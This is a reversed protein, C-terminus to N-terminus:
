EKNLNDKDIEVGKLYFKSTESFKDFIEPVEKTQSYIDKLVEYVDNLKITLNEILFKDNNKTLNFFEFASIAKIKKNEDLIIKSYEISNNYRLFYEEWFKLKYPSYNPFIIDLYPKYFPNKYPTLNRVIDTWISVTKKKAELYKRESDSNYMFTGYLNITYNNALFLILDMNYEFYNPYQIILQHLCDLWQLFIPSKQDEHQEKLYIGNRLAFQHGYSLWEKEILVILGEITRYYPDLLIESLSILQSSRDWGDSCHIM